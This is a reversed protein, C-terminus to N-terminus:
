DDNLITATATSDSIMVQVSSASIQVTFTENAERKRDGNVVISITRSTQGPMFTVTGSSVASFDAPSQSSRISTATGDITRYNVEVPETLPGSLSLTLALATTGKNGELRSGDAISLRPKPPAIPGIYAMASYSQIEGYGGFRQDIITEYNYRIEQPEFTPHVPSYWEMETASSVVFHVGAAPDAPTLQMFCARYPTTWVPDLDPEHIAGNVLEVSVETLPGSVVANLTSENPGFFELTFSTSQARTIYQEDYYGNSLKLFSYDQEYTVGNMTLTWTHLQGNAYVSYLDQGPVGDVQWAQFTGSITLTDSQAFALAPLLLGVVCAMRLSSLFLRSKM